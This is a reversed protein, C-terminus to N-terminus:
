APLRRAILAMGSGAEAEEFGGFGVGGLRARLTPPPVYIPTAAGSSFSLVVSGNPATVRALEDFFPIMNLLLVLDFSGDAFPLAAADGAVFRVRDRLGAPLLREAEAVMRPSLDVGVVEADRFREAALRAGKGTGTGLDLIRSPRRELRALAAAAPALAEPGRRAEWGPALADFQKRLPTRFLRWLAPRAVVARTALRAFRRAARDLWARARGSAERGVGSRGRM